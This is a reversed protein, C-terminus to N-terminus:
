WGSPRIAFLEITKSSGFIPCNTYYNLPQDESVYYNSIMSKNFMHNQAPLPRDNRFLEFVDTEYNRENM